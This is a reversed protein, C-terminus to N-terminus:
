LFYNVGAALILGGFFVLILKGFKEYAKNILRPMLILAVLMGVGFPLLVEFNFNSISGIILPYAGVSLLFASGSIGPIIFFTFAIFGGIFLFFIFEEFNVSFLSLLYGILGGAIVFLLRQLSRESVPHFLFIRLSVLVMIVSLIKFFESSHSEILYHILNSFLLIAAIMSFILFVMLSIQLDNVFYEKSFIKKSLKINSLISILNKYIGFLLAITAGSIGPILEAIGM